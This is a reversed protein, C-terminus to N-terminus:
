CMHLSRPVLSGWTLHWSVDGSLTIESSSSSFFHLCKGVMAASEGRKSTEEESHSSPEHRQGHFPWSSTEWTCPTHHVYHNPGNYVGPYLICLPSAESTDLVPIPPRGHPNWSGAHRDGRLDGHYQGKASVAHPPVHKKECNLERKTKCLGQM